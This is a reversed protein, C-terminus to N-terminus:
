GWWLFFLLLCVKIFIHAPDFLSDFCGCAPLEFFCLSLYYYAPSFWSFILKLGLAVSLLLVLLSRNDRHYSLVSTGRHQDKISTLATYVIENSNCNMNQKTTIIKPPIKRRQKRMLLLTNPSVTDMHFKPSTEKHKLANEMWILWDTPRIQRDMGVVM